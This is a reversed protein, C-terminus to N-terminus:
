RVHTKGVSQAMGRRADYRARYVAVAEAIGKALREREDEARLAEEDASHTLFGIEVLVAPMHVSMLVVFPAQKVGRSRAAEATAIRHQTMRAFEQSLTLQETAAMDGLIALLPDGAAPPQADEGFALNEARALELAAQDTAEPAAFFTEIGRAGKYSSANAHISIFLDAASANALETRGELPVFRDDDRTMVVKLGEARLQREVRKAVDLVVVKEVLGGRGQAGEDDGGHGPDVVVVDFAEPEDEAALGGSFMPVLGSLALALGVGRTRCKWGSM